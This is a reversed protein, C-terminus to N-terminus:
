RNTPPKRSNEHSSVMFATIDLEKRKSITIHLQHGLCSSPYCDVALVPFTFLTFSFLTLDPLTVPPPCTQRASVFKFTSSLFSWTFILAVFRNLINWYNIKIFLTAIFWGKCMHTCLNNKGIM